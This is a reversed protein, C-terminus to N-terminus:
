KSRMKPKPQVLRKVDEPTKVGPYKAKFAEVLKAEMLTAM